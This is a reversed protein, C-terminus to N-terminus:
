TTCLHIYQRLYCVFSMRFGDGEIPTNCHIQHVDMLLFDGCRADICIGWEPFGIYGGTYNDDGTVILNGLGFIYDGADIHCATQWNYNCTVTSFVTDGIIYQPDVLKTHELQRNYEDPALQNYLENIRNFFPISDTFSELNDRTFATQRCYINPVYGLSSKLKKKDQITPKDFFGVINSRTERSSKDNVARGNSHLGAAKGRQKNIKQAHRKFTYTASDTLTNSIANKRFKFLIKGDIYCDCDNQIIRDFRDFYEGHKVINRKTTLHVIESPM